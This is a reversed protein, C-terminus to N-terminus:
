LGFGDENEFAVVGEVWTHTLFYWGSCFIFDISRCEGGNHEVVVVVDGRAVTAQEAANTAVVFITAVMRLLDNTTACGDGCAFFFPNEGELFLGVSHEVGCEDVFKRGETCLGKGEELHHGFTCFFVGFGVAQAFENRIEGRHWEIGYRGGREQSLKHPAAGEVISGVDGVSIELDEFDRLINHSKERKILM